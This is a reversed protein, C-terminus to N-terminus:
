IFAFTGNRVHGDRGRYVGQMFRMDSDVFPLTRKAGTKRNTETVTGSVYTLGVAGGFNGVTAPDSDVGDAVPPGYVHFAGGFALAGGPIPLVDGIGPGAASALRPWSLGSGWAAAGLLSAGAATQIFERRSIARALLAHRARHEAHAIKARIQEATHQDLRM